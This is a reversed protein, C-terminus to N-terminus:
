TRAHSDGSLNTERGKGMQLYDVHLSKFGWMLAKMGEFVDESLSLKANAHSMGGFYKAFSAEVFDPHGYHLRVGCRGLVRQILTGFGFESLGEAAGVPSLNM